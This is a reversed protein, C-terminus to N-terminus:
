LFLLFDWEQFFIIEGTYAKGLNSDFHKGIYEDPSDVSGLLGSTNLSTSNQIPSTSVASNANNNSITGNSVNTNSVESNQGVLNKNNGTM